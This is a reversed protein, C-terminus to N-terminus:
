GLFPRILNAIVEAIAKLQEESLNAFWYIGVQLLLCVACFVLAFTSLCGSKDKKMKGVERGRM